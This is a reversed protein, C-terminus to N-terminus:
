VGVKEARTTVYDNYITFGSAAKYRVPRYLTWGRLDGVM